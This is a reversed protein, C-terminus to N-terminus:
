RRMKFIIGSSPFGFVYLILTNTCIGDWKPDSKSVGRPLGRDPDRGGASIDAQGASIPKYNAETPSDRDEYARERIDAAAATEARVAQNQPLLPRPGPDRHRHRDQPGGQRGPGAQHARQRGAPQVGGQLPHHAPCCHAPRGHPPM